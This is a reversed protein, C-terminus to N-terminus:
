LKIKFYDVYWDVFEKIGSDIDFKPSYNTYKRISSIDSHTKKIDGQQLPLNKIKAKKGINREIINLYNKLKKSNGRGLNFINFPTKTNKPKNLLSVIGMVIDKIFTFDRSHKGNNYLDVKKNEIINKTFKFLAM